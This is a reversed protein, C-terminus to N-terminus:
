FGPPLQRIFEGLWFAVKRHGEPNLHGDIRFYDETSLHGSLDCYYIGSLAAERLRMRLGASLCSQIGHSSLETVVIPGAYVKRIKKLIPIFHDLHQNQGDGAPTVGKGSHSSGPPRSALQNEILYELRQLVLFSLKFPFLWRNVTNMRVTQQYRSRSYDLTGTHRYVMNESLDNDCYQIVLTGCHSRDLEQLLLYERATGYSSIGANLVKRGTHHELLQPFTEEQEVGWGMSFSDGLVILEPQHLSAEDDRLGRSNIRLSTSFELNRFHGQGPKLRYILRPDYRSLAPNVQIADNQLLGYGRGRYVCSGLFHGLGNTSRSRGADFIFGWTLGEVMLIFVFLRFRDWRFLLGIGTYLASFGLLICLPFLYTGAPFRFLMEYRFLAISLFLVGGLLGTLAVQIRTM